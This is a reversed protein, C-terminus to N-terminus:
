EEEDDSDEEKRDRCDKNWSCAIDSGVRAVQGGAKAIDTWDKVTMGQCGLSTLSMGLIVTLVLRTM